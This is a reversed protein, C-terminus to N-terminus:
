SAESRVQLGALARTSRDVDLVRFGQPVYKPDYGVVENFRAYPISVPRLGTVMFLHDWVGDFEEEPWLKLGLARNYTRLAVTGLTHIRKGGTFFVVDGADFAEWKSRDREQRGFVRVDGAVCRERLQALEDPRVHDALWELPSADAINDPEGIPFLVVRPM